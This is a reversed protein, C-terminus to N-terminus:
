IAPKQFDHSRKREERYASVWSSISEREIKLDQELIVNNRIAIQQKELHDLLFISM